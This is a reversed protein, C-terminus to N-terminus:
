IYLQKMALNEEVNNKNTDLTDANKNKSSRLTKAKQQKKELQQEKQQQKKQYKKDRASLKKPPKQKQKQKEEDHEGEEEEKQQQQQKTNDNLKLKNNRTSDTIYEDIKTNLNDKNNETTNDEKKIDNLSVKLDKNANDNDDCNNNLNDEKKNPKNQKELESGLEIEKIEDELLEVNKDNKNYSEYIADIVKDTDGKYKRLLRRIKRIETGPCANLIVKEKSDPSKGDDDDDDDKSNYVSDSSDNKISQEKIEPLGTFPGDINRISSYHEWSHYAIHLTRKTEDTNEDEADDYNEDTDVGSIIYIMGPQYVKIDIKKLKAFAALEMNGGFCGDQEMNSIHHQFSRDDEVFYQYTDKHEMLYHCIEQRISRHHKDIGFYQDSLSRFLCNGDGSIQKTSLGLSRLQTELDQGEDGFRIQKKQARREKRTPKDRKGKAM